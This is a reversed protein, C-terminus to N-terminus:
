ISGLPGMLQICTGGDDFCVTQLM